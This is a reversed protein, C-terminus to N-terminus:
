YSELKSIEMVSTATSRKLFVWNEFLILSKKATDYYSRSGRQGFKVVSKM